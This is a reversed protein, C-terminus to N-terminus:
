WNRMCFKGPISCVIADSASSNNLSPLSSEPLLFGRTMIRQVKHHCSLTATQLPHPKPNRAVGWAGPNKPKQSRTLCRSETERHNYRHRTQVQLAGSNGHKIQKRCNIKQQLKSPPLSITGSCFFGLCRSKNILALSPFCM